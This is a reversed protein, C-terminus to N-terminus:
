EDVPRSDTQKAAISSEWTTNKAFFRIRLAMQSAMKRVDPDPDNTLSLLVPIANTASEAQIGLSVMARIRVSKNTDFLLNTLAPLALDPAQTANGLASAAAHRIFLDADRATHILMPVHLAASPKAFIFADIAAKRIELKPNSAAEILVNVGEPEINALAVNAWLPHDEAYFMRSLEPIASNANSGLFRFAYAAKMARGYPVPQIMPLSEFTDLIQQSVGRGPLRVMPILRPLANTGMARIARAPESDDDVRTPLPPLEDVWETLTRGNHTPEDSPNLFYLVCGALVLGAAILEIKFFKKLGACCREM